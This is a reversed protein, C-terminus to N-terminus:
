QSLAEDIECISVYSSGQGTIILQSQWVAVGTTGSIQNGDDSLVKEVKLRGGYFADSDTSNSVKWIETPSILNPNTLFHTISKKFKYLSPITAVFVSGKETVYINDAPRPLKLEDTLVLTHDAQPEFVRLHPDYTNVMYFSDRPGKALGNPHPYRGFAAVVCELDNQFSCFIITEFQNDTVFPELSRTWHSKSQHDNTFYFSHPSLALINNPTIILHHHITKQYTATAQGIITEFVEIVSQPESSSSLSHNSPLKHNIFYITARRPQNPQNSQHNQHLFLDLGHSHFGFKQLHPPLNILNLQQFEKTKLNLIAIFDSSPISLQNSNLLGLAPSWHSRQSRHSCALYALSATPDLYIDECSELEIKSCKENNFNSGSRFYGFQDIKPKLFLKFLFSSITVLILVISGTQVM